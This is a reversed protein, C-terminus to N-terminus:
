AAVGVFLPVKHNGFLSSVRGVQVVRGSSVARKVLGAAFRDDTDPLGGITFPNGEGVVREFVEACARADAAPTHVGLRRLRKIMGEAQLGLKEAIARDSFGFSRFHKYEHILDDNSYRM